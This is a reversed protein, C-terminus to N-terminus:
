ILKIRSELFVKLIQVLYRREKNKFKIMKNKPKNLYLPNLNMMLKILYQHNVKLFKLVAELYDMMKIESYVEVEKMVQKAMRKKKIMIKNKTKKIKKLMQIIMQIMLYLNIRLYQHSKKIKQYKLPLKLLMQIIILNNKFKFQINKMKIKLFQNLKMKLNTPVSSVRFNLLM